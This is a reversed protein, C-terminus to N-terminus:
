FNLYINIIGRHLFLPEALSSFKTRDDRSVALFIAGVGCRGKHLEAVVM